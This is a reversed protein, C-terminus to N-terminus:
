EAVGSEVRANTWGASEVLLDRGAASRAQGMRRAKASVPQGLFHDEVRVEPYIEKSEEMKEKVKFMYTDWLKEPKIKVGQYALWSSLVQYTELSHEESHIDILTQYCDFIIGKVQCSEFKDKGEGAPDSLIIIKDKDAESEHNSMRKGGM